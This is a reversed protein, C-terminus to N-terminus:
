RGMRREFDAFINKAYPNVAPAPRSAVTNSNPKSTNESSNNATAKVEKEENKNSSFTVKDEKGKDLGALGPFSEKGGNLKKTLWASFKPFTVLAAFIALVPIATKAIKLMRTSNIIKSIGSRMKELPVREAGNAAKMVIDDTATMVDRVITGLGSGVPKAGAVTLVAETEKLHEAAKPLFKSLFEGTARDRNALLTKRITSENERFLSTMSKTAMNYAERRIASTSTNQIGKAAAEQLLKERAAQFAKVFEDKLQKKAFQKAIKDINAKGMSSGVHQVVEDILGSSLKLPNAATSSYARVDELLGRAIKQRLENVSLVKTGKLAETKIIDQVKAEIANIAAYNTFTKTNVGLPNLASGLLKNGIATFLLGPGFFLVSSSFVERMFAERGADWNLHGLEEKNRNLDILTRPMIMGLLDITALSLVPKSELTSLVKIVPNSTFSVTDQKPQQSFSNRAVGEQKKLPLKPQEKFTINNVSM